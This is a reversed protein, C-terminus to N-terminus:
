FRHGRDRITAPRPEDPQPEVRRAISILVGLSVACMVLSSGGYSIFPLPLGKSPLVGTVVGM